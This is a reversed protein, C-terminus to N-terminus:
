HHIYFLYFFFLLSVVLNYSYHIKKQCFFKGFDRLQTLFVTALRWATFDFTEQSVTTSFNLAVLDKPVVELAQSCNLQGQSRTMLGVATCHSEHSRFSGSKKKEKRMIRKQPGLSKCIKLAFPSFLHQQLLTM